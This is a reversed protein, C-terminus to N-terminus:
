NWRLISACLESPTTSAGVLDIRAVNLKGVFTEGNLRAVKGKSKICQPVYPNVLLKM